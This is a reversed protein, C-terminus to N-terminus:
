WVYRGTDIYQVEEIIYPVIRTGKQLKKLCHCLFCDMSSIEYISLEIVFVFM